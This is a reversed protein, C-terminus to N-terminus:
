LQVSCGDPISVGNSDASQCEARLSYSFVAGMLSQFPIPSIRQPYIKQSYSFVAGMLSQFLPLTQLLRSPKVSYSFVAGM